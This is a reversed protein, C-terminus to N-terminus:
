FLTNMLYLVILEFCLKVSHIGKFFMSLYFLTMVEKCYQCTCKFGQVKPQCGQEGVCDNSGHNLRCYQCGLKNHLKKTGLHGCFSCHFKKQMNRNEEEVQETEHDYCSRLGCDSERM